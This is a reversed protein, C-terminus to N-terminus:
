PTCHFSGGCYYTFEQDHRGYNVANRDGCGGRCYAFLAYMNEARDFDVRPDSEVCHGCIEKYHDSILVWPNEKGCASCIPASM